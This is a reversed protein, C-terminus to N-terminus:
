GKGYKMFWHVIGAETFADGAKVFGNREYFSVASEQAHLYVTKQLPLVNKLVAALLRAGLGHRRYDALVAFRELKIGKETERWRATAVPEPGHYVLYHRAAADHDDYELTPDIGQERVFVAQRLALAAAAHAHDSFPFSQITFTAATM